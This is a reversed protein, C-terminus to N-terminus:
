KNFLSMASKKTSDAIDIYPKMSKYDSHGTWKMVVDPQIGLMLANCIFTRRGCHTSLYQWKPKTTEIRKAGQYYTETIPANLEALKGLEKLYDNMKQNSVVPFANESDTDAYRALLERSYDNLEIRLTDNTKITAIHITDNIINDKKLNRVDSYRLSTFCSFCFIDRVRRLYDKNDPINLNYLHILEEWTLFIVRKQTTKLKSKYAMFTTDSAHGKAVAWRLFWKLIAIDKKITTNRIGLDLLYDSWLNIGDPTLDEFTARPHWDQLHRLITKHKTITGPTWSAEQSQEEIFSNYLEFMSQGEETLPTRFTDNLAREFEEPLPQRVGFGEVVKDVTEAYKEIMGNITSAKIHTEGHTSNRICRQADKSWKDPNIVYGMSYFYRHQKYYVAMQLYKKNSLLFHVSYRM